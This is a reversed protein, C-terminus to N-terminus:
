EPETKTTGKNKLTNSQENGYMDWVIFGEDDEPSYVIKGLHQGTESDCGDYRIDFMADAGSM